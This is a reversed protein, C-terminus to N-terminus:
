KNLKNVDDVTLSLVKDTTTVNSTLKVTPPLVKNTTTVNSILKTNTNGALIGESPIVVVSEHGETISELSKKKTQNVGDDFPPANVGDDIPPLFAATKSMKASAYGALLPSPNQKDPKTVQRKLRDSTTTTSLRGREIKKEVPQSMGDGSDDGVSPPHKTPM